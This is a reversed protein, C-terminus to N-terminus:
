ADLGASTLCNLFIDCLLMSKIVALTVHRSRIWQWRRFCEAVSRVVPRWETNTKTFSYCQIYSYRPTIITSIYNNIWLGPTLLASIAAVTAGIRLAALTVVIWDVSNPAFIAIVDHIQCGHNLLQAAVLEARSMLQSHTISRREGDVEVQLRRRSAINCTFTHLLAINYSYHM